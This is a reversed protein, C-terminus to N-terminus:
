DYHYLLPVSPRSIQGERDIAQVCYWYDVGRRASNDTFVNGNIIPSVQRYPGGTNRRFVVFGKVIQPDFAPGWQVELGCGESPQSGMPAVVPTTPLDCTYTFTSSSPLTSLSAAESENGLWDLASVRYWYINRPVATEDLYQGHATLPNAEAPIDGCVPPLGTWPTPLITGDTLVCALFVPPDFERDSRYVHFARLDQVPSGIWEVLVANDRARLGTIVPAQPPTEELLRMCVYQDDEPCGRNGGYLNQSTDYARVWYAYCLPSGEPVSLDDFFIKGTSELMSKAEDLSVQGVLLFDCPSEPKDQGEPMYVTGNDCLSRYIQYGALDPESNPDWYVRIHDAFGEAPGVVTPGPPTTDPVRGGIMASPASLNTYPDACRLRYYFTKEGYPPLLVSDTDTWSLVPTENDQPNASISGVQKAPLSAIDELAEQTDARYITYTQTTDPLQHNDIDRTVKRWNLVLSPPSLQPFVKLEDPAMPPTSRVPTASVVTSWSGIHELNDVSAVRYYYTTGNEPGTVISGNVIHWLPLGDESWRQFDLFGPRPPTIPQDQIDKEVDYAVPKPNVIQFPGGPNTSRQVVYTAAYPNRNWISLVKRDGVSLTLGSPPAPPDFLGAWIMVNEALVVETGNRQVGRLEYVYQQKATVRRDFYAAGRAQALKLNSKALTDFLTEEEPTLRRELATCPDVVTRGIRRSKAGTQPDVALERIGALAARDTFRANPAERDVQSLKRRHALATFGNVLLNWEPSDEPIIKTLQDCTEVPAIPVSGNIPRSRKTLRGGAKFRYLNYGFMESHLAWTLVVFTKGAADIEASNAHMITYPNETIEDRSHPYLEESM